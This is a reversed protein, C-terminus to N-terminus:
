KELNCYLIQNWNILRCWNCLFVQVTKGFLVIWNIKWGSFLFHRNIIMLVIESRGTLVYPLVINLITIQVCVLGCWFHTSPTWLIFFTLFTLNILSVPITNIFFLQKASIAKFFSVLSSKSIRMLLLQNAREVTMFFTVFRSM